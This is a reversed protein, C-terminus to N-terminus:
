TYVLLHCKWLARFGLTVADSSKWLYSSTHHIQGWYWIWLLAIFKNLAFRRLINCKPFLLSSLTFSNNSAFWSCHMSGLNAHLDILAEQSCQLVKWGADPPLSWSIQTSGKHVLFLSPCRLTPKHVFSAIVSCFRNQHDGSYNHWLHFEECWTDKNRVCRSIKLTQVTLM